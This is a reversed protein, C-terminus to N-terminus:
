FDMERCKEGAMTALMRSAKEEDEDVREQLCHLVFLESLHDSAMASRLWTKVRAICSFLREAEVTTTPLTM